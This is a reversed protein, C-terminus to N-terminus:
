IFDDFYEMYFGLFFFFGILIGLLFKDWYFMDELIEECERMDRVYGKDMVECVIDDWKKDDMNFYEDKLLRKIVIDRVNYLDKIEDDIEYVEDFDLEFDRDNVDDLFIFYFDEM